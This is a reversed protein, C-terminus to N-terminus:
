AAAGGHERPNAHRSVGSAASAARGDRRGAVSPLQLIDDDAVPEVGDFSRLLCEVGERESDPLERVRSLVDRHLAQQARQFRRKAAPATTGFKVAIEGWELGGILRWWILEGTSQLADEYSAMVLTLLCAMAPTSPASAIGGWDKASEKMDDCYDQAMQRAAIGSAPSRYMDTLTNRATARVWALVQADCVANCSRIAKAIRILTEQVVDEAMDTGDVSHRLRFAAFSRIPKCLLTLLDELAADALDGHGKAVALLSAYLIGPSAKTDAHTVVISLEVDSVRCSAVPM